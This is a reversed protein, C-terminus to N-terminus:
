ESNKRYYVTRQYPSQYNWYKAILVGNHDIFLDRLNSNYWYDEFHILDASKLIGWGQVLIYYFNGVKNFINESSSGWEPFVAYVYSFTAGYDTSKYITFPSVIIFIEDKDNVFLNQSYGPTEIRTWTLGDDVSRFLSCCDAGHLVLSGDKLRFVKGIGHTTVEGGLEIWTIGSDKSYKTPLNYTSVWIYNDSTISINLYFSIQSYPRTCLQWSEGHDSSRILDGNWTTAYFVRNRDIYITRLSSLYQGTVEKWIYYKEGQRYLIGGCVMFTIKNVTDAAMGSINYEMADPLTDWENTRFGYAVLDSSNLYNESLDYTNARLIQRFSESGLKWGTYAYGDKDTYTSSVTVRGGGKAVEFLVKISDKRPSSNDVAMFRISDSVWEGAFFREGQNQKFAFFYDRLLKVEPDPYRDCSLIVLVLIIIILHLPRKM